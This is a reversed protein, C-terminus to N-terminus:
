LDIKGRKYVLVVISEMPQHPFNKRSSFLTLFNSAKLVYCKVRTQTLEAPIQGIGAM